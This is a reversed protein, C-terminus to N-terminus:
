DAEKLLNSDYEIKWEIPETKNREILKISLQNYFNNSNNLNGSVFIENLYIVPQKQFADILLNLPQAKILQKSKNMEDTYSFNIELYADGAVTQWNHIHNLLSANLITISSQASLCSFEKSSNSSSLIFHNQM